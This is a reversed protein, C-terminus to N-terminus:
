PHFPVALGNLLPGVFSDCCWVDDIGVLFPAGMFAGRLAGGFEVGSSAENILAAAGDETVVVAEFLRFAGLRNTTHITTAAPIASDTDPDSRKSRRRCLYTCRVVSSRFVNWRRTTTSSFLSVM